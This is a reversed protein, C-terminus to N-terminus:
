GGKGGLRCQFSMVFYMRGLVVQRQVVTPELDAVERTLVADSRWRALFVNTDPANGSRAVPVCLSFTLATKTSDLNAEYLFCGLPLDRALSALIQGVHRHQVLVRQVPALQRSTQAMEEALAQVCAMASRAAPFRERLEAEVAAAGRSRNRIQVVSWTLWYAALVLCLSCVVLYAMLGWFLRARRAATPVRDAILNIRYRLM